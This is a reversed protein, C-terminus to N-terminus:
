RKCTSHGLFPALEALFYMYIYIYVHVNVYKEASWAQGDAWSLTTTTRPQRAQDVPVQHGAANLRATCSKSSHSSHIGNLTCSVEERPIHLMKELSAIIKKESPLLLEPLNGREDEMKFLVRQHHEFHITWVQDFHAVLRKNVGHTENCNRIFCRVAEM